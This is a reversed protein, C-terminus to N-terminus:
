AIPEVIGDPLAPPAEMGSSVGEPEVGSSRSRPVLEFVYDLAQERLHAKENV